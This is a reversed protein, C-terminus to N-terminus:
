ADKRENPKPLKDRFGATVKAQQEPSVPLGLDDWFLRADLDFDKSQVIKDVDLTRYAEILGTVADQPTKYPPSM